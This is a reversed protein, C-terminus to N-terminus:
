DDHLAEIHGNKLAFLGFTLQKPANGENNRILDRMARRSQPTGCPFLLLAERHPISACVDDTKLQTAAFGAFNASLIVAAAAWHGGVLIFPLGGPGKPFFRTSIVQRKALDALNQLALSRAAQWDLRLTALDKSTAGYVMGGADFVLTVYVDHGIPELPASADVHPLYARPVLYPYLRSASVPDTATTGDLNDPASPKSEPM